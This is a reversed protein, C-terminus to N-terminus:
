CEKCDTERICCNETMFALLANMTDLNARYIISRGDKRSSVLGAHSLHSLHFSLTNHPIGLTESLKGAPAGERGHEVLLRFTQLRTEQSLSAFADLASKIEM